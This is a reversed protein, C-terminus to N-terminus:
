QLIALINLTLPLECACFLKRYVIRDRFCHFAKLLDTTKLIVVIFSIVVSYCFVTVFCLLSFFFICYINNQLFLKKHPDFVKNVEMFLM